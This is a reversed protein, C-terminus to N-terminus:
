TQWAAAALLVLRSFLPRLRLAQSNRLYLGHQQIVIRDRTAELRAQSDRITGSEPRSDANFISIIDDDDLWSSASVAGTIQAAMSGGPDNVHIHEVWSYEAAYRACIAPTSISEGVAADRVTSALILADIEGDRYMRSYYRILGGMRPVENMVPIVVVARGIPTTLPSPPQPASRRDRIRMVWIVTRYSFGGILLVAIGVAVVSYHENM